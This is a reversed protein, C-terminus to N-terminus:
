PLQWQYGAEGRLGHGEAEGYVGPHGTPAIARRRSASAELLGRRKELFRFIEEGGIAQAREPRLVLSANHCFPCRMNCGGTFVSCAVKGPYDLLTLKQLGLIRM